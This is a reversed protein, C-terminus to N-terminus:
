AAVGYTCPTARVLNRLLATYADRLAAEADPHEAAGCRPSGDAAVEVRVAYMPAMTGPARTIEIHGTALPVGAVARCLADQERALAILAESPPMARFHLTPYRAHSPAEVGALPSHARSSRVHSSSSRKM